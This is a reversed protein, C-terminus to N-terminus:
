ALVCKPATKIHKQPESLQITLVLVKIIEKKRERAPGGGQPPAIVYFCDDGEALNVAATYQISVTSSYEGEPHMRALGLFPVEEM